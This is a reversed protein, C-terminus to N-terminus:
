EKEEEIMHHIYRRTVFINGGLITILIIFTIGMKIFLIQRFNDETDNQWLTTAVSMSRSYSTEHAVIIDIQIAYIKTSPSIMYKAATDLAIYDAQAIQLQSYVETNPRPIGQTADGNLLAHQTGEFIPIINQLENYAQVHEDIPRYLLILADAKIRIARARQLTIQAIVSSGTGTYLTLFQFGILTLLLLLLGSVIAKVYSRYYKTRRERM